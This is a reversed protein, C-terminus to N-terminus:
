DTDRYFHPIIGWRATLGAPALHGCSPCQKVSMPTTPLRPTHFDALYGPTEFAVPPKPDLRLAPVALELVRGFGAPDGSV